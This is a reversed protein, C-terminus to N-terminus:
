AETAIRIFHIATTDSGPGQYFYVMIDGNELALLQPHGVSYRSMEEWAEDMKMFQSDQREQDFSVLCDSSDFSKGEDNSLHLFIEPFKRRDITVLVLQGDPLQVPRGPQGYVGTDQPQSWSKGGDASESRHINRYQNTVGDFTWFFNVLRKGDSLVLPRQDWYFMGPQNTVLRMEPWSFGGDRSFLLASRHIWPKSDGRFKNIEFQCILSGDALRMPPGTLPVPGGAAQSDILCPDSWDAGENDSISYFIRTDKLSETAPDFFPAHPDGADVWNILLLVKSEGLALFYLSHSNGPRGDVLPLQVPEFPSVWTKGQDDSWTMMAKMSLADKKKDAARFGALWRGSPLIEITPFSVSPLGFAKQLGRVQGKDLVRM